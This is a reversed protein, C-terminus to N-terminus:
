IRFSKPNEKQIVNEEELMQITEDSYGYEKLIEHNHVGLVPPTIRYSVPTESFRIPNGVIKIEGYPAGKMSRFVEMHVVQPNKVVEPYKLVEGCWVDKKQLIRIWEATTKKLLANATIEFIEDRYLQGAEWSTYKM